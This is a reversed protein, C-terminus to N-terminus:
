PDDPDTPDPPQRPGPKVFRQNTDEGVLRLGHKHKYHHHHCCLRGLNRLETRGGEEIPVNHDIELNETMHCGELVCEPYLEEIATRLRAPITRGLHSVALVDTGDVLVAKIFADDLLKSAVAVPIPGSGVIECVEGPETHGRILSAHDIRIVATTAPRSAAAKTAEDDAAVRSADALAILADFALADSREERGAKRAADFLDKEYPALAALVRATQDVPGRIDIRGAGDPDTWHRISRSARVREYRAMEDVCAAAKIRAGETRLGRIGDHQARELLASEAHPDVSAADTIVEAQTGSLSGARFAADVAPLSELRAATEM